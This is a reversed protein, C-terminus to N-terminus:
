APEPPLMGMSARLMLDYKRRRDPDKLVSYSKNVISFREASQPDNCHDPHYRMALAHYAKRIQQDDAEPDLGLHEYLNEVEVTIAATEARQPESAPPNTSAAAAASAGEVAGSVDGDFPMAAGNLNICGFRAFQDLAKTIGPRVDFFRVGMQYTSGALSMRRVWVIIGSVRISQGENQIVLPLRQGVVVKPKGECKCRMGSTSLDVLEGLQPSRLGHADHREAQRMRHPRPKKGFPWSFSM